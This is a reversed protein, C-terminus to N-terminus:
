DQPPTPTLMCLMNLFYQCYECTVLKFIVLNFDVVYLNTEDIPKIPKDLNKFIITVNKTLM